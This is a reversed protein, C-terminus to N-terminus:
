FQFLLNFVDEYCVYVYLDSWELIFSGGEVETNLFYKKTKIDKYAIANKDLKLWCVGIKTFNIDWSGSFLM